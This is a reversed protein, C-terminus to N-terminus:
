LLKENTKFIVAPLALTLRKFHAWPEALDESSANPVLYIDSHSCKTGKGNWFYAQPTMITYPQIREWECQSPNELIVHSHVARWHDISSKM